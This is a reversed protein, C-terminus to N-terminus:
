CRALIQRLRWTLLGAASALGALLGYWVGKAGMNTFRALYYVLRFGVGWYSICTLGMPWNVDKMGRLLQNASAQAADFFMFGVAIPIFSVVLSLVRTADIADGKMYLGAIVEPWIGLPIAIIAISSIALIFTAQSVRIMAPKSGAGVALGMRAAGVMAFGWPMMYALASINLTIHYAAVELAGILGMIIICANFLMGEFFTTLSIPWSLRFIEKLRGPDLKHFNKLINFPRSDTDWYCYVIFALFCMITALSSALGAGVLELRPFGLAGFILLWNLLANLLTTGIIIWFPISTKGLVALYNRLMMIGLSFPWGLMIAKIYGSAKHAILRDQGAWILIDETFWLTLWVLPIFLIILWLSARVSRRVDAYNNKDAGLAQSVMPSVAIAPGFGLMWFAYYIVLGLSSAALDDAGLRGIMIIDVTHISMHALQALAMPLGLAFLVSLEGRLHTIKEPPPHSVSKDQKTEAM